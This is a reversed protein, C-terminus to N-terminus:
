TTPMNIFSIALYYKPLPIRLTLPHTSEKWFLLIGNLGTVSPLISLTFTVCVHPQNRPMAWPPVTTTTRMHSPLWKKPFTSIGFFAESLFACEVSTWPPWSNLKRQHFHVQQNSNLETRSLAVRWNSVSGGSPASPKSAPPGIPIEMHLLLPLMTTPANM